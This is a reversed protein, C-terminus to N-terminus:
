AMAAIVRTPGAHRCAAVTLAALLRLRECFRFTLDVPIDTRLVTRANPPGGLTDRFDRATYRRPWQRYRM